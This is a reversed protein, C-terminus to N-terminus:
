KCLLWKFVERKLGGFEKRYFFFQLIFKKRGLSLHLIYYSLAQFTYKCNEKVLGALIFVLILLFNLWLNLHCSTTVMLPLLLM